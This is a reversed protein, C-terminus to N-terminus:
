NKIKQEINNKNLQLENTLDYYIIELNFNEIIPIIEDCILSPLLINNIEKNNDLIAKIGYEMSSRGSRFINKSYGRKLNLLSKFYSSYKFLPQVTVKNM